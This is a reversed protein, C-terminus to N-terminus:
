AHVLNKPKHSYNKRIHPRAKWDGTKVLTEKSGKYDPTYPIYAEGFITKIKKMETGCLYKLVNQLVRDQTIQHAEVLIKEAGPAIMCVGNDNYMSFEPTTRITGLYKSKYELPVKHKVSGHLLSGAVLIIIAPTTENIELKM